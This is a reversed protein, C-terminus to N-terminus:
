KNGWGLDANSYDINKRKLNDIDEFVGFHKIRDINPKITAGIYTELERLEEDTLLALITVPNISALEPTESFFKYAKRLSEKHSSFDLKSYVNEYLFNRLENFIEFERGESFSVFGKEKSEKVLAEICRNIRTKRDLGLENLSKPLEGETLYGYKISDEIDSSTFAIKDGYMVVGCEITKGIPIIIKGDKRSHFFIGELVEYSLNLNEIEQYVVVGFNLHSFPKKHGNLESFTSEGLHCYGAHGGDHAAAIARCLTTNLGLDDSIKETIDIVEKTHMLRTRIYPTEPPCLLQAKHALRNYAKSRIIREYDVEFPNKETQPEPYKRGKTDKVDFAKLM